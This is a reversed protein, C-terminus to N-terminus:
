VDPFLEDEYGTGALMEKASRDKKQEDTLVPKGTADAQGGLTERVRLREQKALLDATVKNAEEARKVASELRELMGVEDSSSSPDPPGSPVATPTPVEVNDGQGASPHNVNIEENVVKENNNDVM